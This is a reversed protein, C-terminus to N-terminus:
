ALTQRTGSKAATLIADLLRHIKVGHDFDGLSSEEGRLARAAQQYAHAMTFAPSEPDIGFYAEAGAAIAIPQLEEGKGQAGSVRLLSSGPLGNGVINLVGETGTIRLEFCPRAPYAGLFSASVLAGSKLRGSVAIHDPSNKRLTKGTDLANGEPILTAVEASVSAFDGLIHTLADLCHGGPITLLNAGNRLDAAYTSFIVKGWFPAVNYLSASLVQGVYGHDVMKRLQRITPSARGQLGTFGRVGQERALEALRQIEQSCTGVPWECYVPKGALLAAQVAPFHAPAKVSVVVLDVDACAALPAAGVFAHDAGVAEAARRASEEGTTAVAVLKFDGLAALAPLHATCSWGREANVGVLGIKLPTKHESMPYTRAASPNSTAVM